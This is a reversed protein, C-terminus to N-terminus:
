EKKGGLLLFHFCFLNVIVMFGQVYWPVDARFAVAVLWLSLLCFLGRVILFIASITEHTKKM